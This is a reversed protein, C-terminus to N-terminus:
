LECLIKQILSKLFKAQIDIDYIDFPPIHIFLALGDADNAAQYKLSKFYVYNCLYRGPDDSERVNFEEAALQSCIFEVPLCTKLCAEFEHQGSILEGVPQYGAMDPVRFTM